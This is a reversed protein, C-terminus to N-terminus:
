MGEAASSASSRGRETLHADCLGALVESDVFAALLETVAEPSRSATASVV